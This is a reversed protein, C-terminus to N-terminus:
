HSYAFRWDAGRYHLSLQRWLRFGPGPDKEDTSSFAGLSGTLQDQVVRPNAIHQGAAVNAAM